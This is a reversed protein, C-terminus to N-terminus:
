HNLLGVGLVNGLPINQLLRLEYSLSPFNSSRTTAATELCFSGLIFATSVLISPERRRQLHREKSSVRGTDLRDIDLRDTDSWHRDMRHKGRMHLSDAHHSSNLILTLCISSKCYGPLKYKYRRGHTNGQRHCTQYPEGKDSCSPHCSLM